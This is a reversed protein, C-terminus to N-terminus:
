QEALPQRETVAPQREKVYVLLKDRLKFAGQTAIFDGANLGKAIYIFAGENLGGIVAQRRARYAKGNTHAGDDADLLYVYAGLADQRYATAPIRPLPQSAGSDLAVNVIANPLLQPDRKLEARYRLNRSASSMATERAIVKGHFQQGAQSSLSVVLPWGIAVSVQSLPLQFDVWLVESDGLLATIVSNSQLYEGVEFQHIGATAAFPAIVTKKSIVAQLAEIDALAIDYEARAQDRRDESVTNNKILASVRQLDLRALEARAKAAQLRAREETIDLQLLVDGKAVQGGSRFNVAAIRGELENHLTVRNPAVIEGLTNIRQQMPQNEVVMAEVTESPEPFSEGYAIAANIQLMKYVALVAFVLVCALVTIFWRRVNM